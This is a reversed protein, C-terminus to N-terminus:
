MMIPRKHPAHEYQLLTKTSVGCKESLADPTLGKSKRLDKLTKM